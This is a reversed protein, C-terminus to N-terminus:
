SGDDKGFYAEALGPRVARWGSEDLEFVRWTMKGAGDPSPGTIVGSERFGMRAHFAMSAVNQALVEARILGFGFDRFAMDLALVGLRGGSGKPAWSEGIYFGWECTALAEDIDRFTVFGLPVGGCEYVFRRRQTDALANEFWALHESESVVHQNSMSLRIRDSNRWSRLRQSDDARLPRLASCPRPSAMCRMLGAATPPGEGPHAGLLARAAHGMVEVAGVDDLLGALADALSAATVGSAPGLSLTAGAAAAAHTGREQNDAIVLSVSPLGVACRELLTVGGAAIMLDAAAMPVAMDEVRGYLKVQPMTATLAAVRERHPAAEPLVIDVALDDRGLLAIAKLAKETENSPDTSGFCVLLRGISGDRDRPSVAARAFQPRLLAFHPGVLLTATSPALTAYDGLDAGLNHDLLLDCDHIRNALDDIVAVRQAFGRMATEFGADLGYHDVLLWDARKIGAARLATQTARADAAADRTLEPVRVVTYGASEVLAIADGLAPVCAFVCGAGEELLADALTLCRAIHGGGLGASADARFVVDM